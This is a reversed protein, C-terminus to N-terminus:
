TRKVRLILWLFFPAGLASTVLGVPLEAPQIMTRALLDSLITLGSGLIASGMLLYRHNVGGLLRVIHPVVLGVFGVIGALSVSLGVMLACSFIIVIKLRKVDVGLRLAEIEGLQLIDIKRAVSILVFLSIFIISTFPIVMESTAGGFSGMLWFTLGRLQSDTSIFTMIGIGVTAFANLAIGILLIYTIGDRKFGGTLLYLIYIVTFSGLIAAFPTMYIGGGLHNLLNPLVVISLVAGLAAGASVGILGPEALPNRFLGQLAAGAQGLAAGIIAALLVRPGRVNLIIERKLESFDESFWDTIPIKVGGYNLGCFIALVMISCLCWLIIKQKNTIYNLTRRLDTTNSLM